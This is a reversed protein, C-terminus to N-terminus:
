DSGGRGGSLWRVLGVVFAVLAALVAIMVLTGFWMGWDHMAEAEACSSSGVTWLLSALAINRMAYWTERTVLARRASNGRFRNSMSSSKDCSM